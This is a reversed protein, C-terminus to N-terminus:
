ANIGSQIPGGDIALTFAKTVVEDKSGAILNSSVFANYIVFFGTTRTANEYYTIKVQTRVQDDALQELKQHVANDALYNVTLECDPVSKTGLLKRNYSSNYTTVAIVTSEFGSTAFTAVEPIEQFDTAATSSGATYTGLEVKLNAGTMISFAM